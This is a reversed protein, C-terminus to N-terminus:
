WNIAAIEEPTTAALVQDKLARAKFIQLAEHTGAAAGLGALGAADLTVVSNDYTIWQTEFAPNLLSLTVAGSIRQVSKADSDYMVGDFEFGDTIAADRAADIERLKAARMAEIDAQWVGDAWVHEASPPPDLTVILAPLEGPATVEKAEGDATYGTKGRHDKVIVWEGGVRVPVHGAPAQPPVDLTAFAPVLWAGEVLPDPDADTIACLAGTSPDYHYLDM